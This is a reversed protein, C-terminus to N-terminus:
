PVPGPREKPLLEAPLNCLIWSTVTYAWKFTKGDPSDPYPETADSLTALDLTVTWVGAPDFRADAVQNIAATFTAGTAGRFTQRGGSRADILFATTSHRYQINGIMAPDPWTFNMAVTQQGFYLKGDDPREFDDEFLVITQAIVVATFPKPGTVPIYLPAQEAPFM